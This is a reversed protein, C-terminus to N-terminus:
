KRRWIWHVLMGVGISVLVVLTLPVTFQWLIFRFDVARINQFIVVALLTAVITVLITRTQTKM